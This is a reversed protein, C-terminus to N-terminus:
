ILAIMPARQRGPQLGCLAQQLRHVLGGLRDTRGGLLLGRPICADMSTLEESCDQRLAVLAPRTVTAYFNITRVIGPM